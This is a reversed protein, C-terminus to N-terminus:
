KCMCLEISVIAIYVCKSSVIKTCFNLFSIFSIFSIYTSDKHISAPRGLKTQLTKFERDKEFSIATHPLFSFGYM